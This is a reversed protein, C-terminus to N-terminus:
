KGGENFIHFRLYEPRYEAGYTDAANANIVFWSQCM